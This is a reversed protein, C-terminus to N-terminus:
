QYFWYRYAAYRGSIDIRPRPRTIASAPVLIVMEDWGEAPRFRGQAAPQGDVQVHVEAEVFQLPEARGGGPRLINVPVVQATRMVILLDKGSDANVEFSESGVIARGADATRQNGGPYVDVRATGHLRLNGLHSEFRYGHAAEDVPDCVNLRDVEKRAAVAAITRPVFVRPAAELADYRTRYIEIEDGFSTTRFVPPGSAIERLLDSGEQTGTTTILFAPKAPLRALGELMGAEREGARTGFFAPNTVGHLNVNRHGTLYEVSTAVNAMATGPPVSRAIWRAAAHDRRYIEGAMEGYLAAFRVTSLAGLTVFLGAGAMFAARARPGGIARAVVGTGVAVLALLAPFAWLIYRNFHVGLFMNPSVIAFLTAAAFLWLQVPRALAHRQFAAAAVLLLGLPPFALAAWGRNFGISASSPYFGLLLGRIVDVGYEAAIGIASVFGYNAFLSKDAISTGVWSGTFVRNNALVLLGALVGVWPLFREFGRADRGPGFIWGAAILVALPLGEPRTLAILVLPAVVAGFRAEPWATLMSRLLWTALFMFLAIDAGYLFGWVVPGGAVVLAGALWGEQRGGLRRGIDIAMKVTAVYLAAGSLIAFAILGEGRFGVRHAAALMGTHLLSTAGSSAPEGPNYQFPHGDAMARAYQCVLYLDAVQPVFQGGAASLMSAIFALAVLAAAALLLLTARRDTATDPRAAAKDQQM